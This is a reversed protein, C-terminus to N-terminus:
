WGLMTMSGVMLWLAHAFLLPYRSADATGILSENSDLIEPTAAGVPLFGLTTNVRVMLIISYYGPPMEFQVDVLYANLTCCRDDFPYESMKEIYAVPEPQLPRSCNDALFIGYGFIDTENIVGLVANAGFQFSVRM